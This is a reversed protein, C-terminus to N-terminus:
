CEPEEAAEGAPRWFALRAGWGEPPPPPPEEAMAEATTPVYAVRPTSASMARFNRQTWGEPAVSQEAMAAAEAGSAPEMESPLIIAPFASSAEHWGRAGSHLKFDLLREPFFSISSDSM